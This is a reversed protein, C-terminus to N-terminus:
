RRSVRAVSQILQFIPRSNYTRSRKLNQYILSLLESVTYSLSMAEIFTQYSITHPRDFPVMALARSHGQLDSKSNSVKRAKIGRLVYWSHALIARRRTTCVPTHCVSPRICSSLM